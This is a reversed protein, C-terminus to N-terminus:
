VGVFLKVNEIQPANELERVFSNIERGKGELVFILMCKGHHLCQHINTKIISDHKRQISHVTDKNHEPLLVTLSGHFIEDKKLLTEIEKEAVYHRLAARVIDSRGSYGLEKIMYDVNELLKDNVSISIIPM